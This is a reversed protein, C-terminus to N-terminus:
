RLLQEIGRLLRDMDNNFDPDPRVPQANRYALARLSEPLEAETPVAAGQVLVPIVPIDRELASEVEIRLHDRPDDIRRAGTQRDAALWEKGIVALLVDCGGVAERLHRRFDQGLPISDVDKFVTQRGFRQTLRENIRDSIYASDERRYSIFLRAGRPSGPTAPQRPPSPPPDDRISAAPQPAETEPAAAPARVGRVAFSVAVVALQLVALMLPWPVSENITQFGLLLLVSSSIPVALLTWPSSVGSNGATQAPGRRAAWVTAAALTTVAGRLLGARGLHLSDASLAYTLSWCPLLGAAIWFEHRPAKRHALSALALFAGIGLLAAAIEITNWDLLWSLLSPGAYLASDSPTTSTEPEVAQQWLALLTMM